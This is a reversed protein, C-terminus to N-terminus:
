SEGRDPPNSLADRLRRLARAELQRVREKSLGLLVGVEALSLRPDVYHRSMMIKQEREPLAAIAACLGPTRWGCRPPLQERVAAILSGWQMGLPAGGASAGAATAANTALAAARQATGVDEDDTFRAVECDKEVLTTCHERHRDLSWQAHHVDMYLFDPMGLAELAALARLCESPGHEANM